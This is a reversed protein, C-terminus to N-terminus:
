IGYLEEETIPAEEYYMAGLGLSQLETNIALQEGAQNSALVVFERVRALESAIQRRWVNSNSELVTRSPLAVFDYIVASTKGPARRLVRGRRQVHQRYSNSSALIFATRCSPIDFGEDLVRMAVVADLDGAEFSALIRKREPVTESATIRGAKWELSALTKLTQNVVKASDDQNADLPHYGEGCYILTHPLPRLQALHRQLQRLKDRLGGLLRSRRAFLSQLARQTEQDKREPDRAILAAIQLSLAEYAQAEDPEFSCAITHYRYPCLVGDELANQLTYTAVVPGYVHELNEKADTRGPNWPTASMGLKFKAATPIRDRWVRGAHHHCEDGVFFLNAAPIQTLVDQFNPTSLTDNVVVIALFRLAQARFASLKQDLEPRWQGVGYFAKVPQINFLRMVEVWQEALVQYPAAVVLVLPYGQDVFRTAAHLATITKGSGTALALIGNYSNAAWKQLAAQQHLRLSYSSGALRSPLRPLSNEMGSLSLPEDFENERDLDPPLHRDRRFKILEDYFTSPVEVSYVNPVLNDWLKDFGDQFPAGYEAFVEENWSRYVALSEFNKHPLLAKASENASGHFVLRNGERDTLIGIKEHYMGGKRFAFRIELSNTAVMWSLLELSHVSRETGARELMLVLDQQLQQQLAALAVGERVAAWDEDSLPHGILLRMQGHNKILGSLGFAAEVLMSSSFFGVARDYKVAVALCPLYFDRILSDTATRYVGKISLTRFTMETRKAAWVIAGVVRHESPM